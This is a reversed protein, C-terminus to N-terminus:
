LWYPSTIAITIIIGKGGGWKRVRMVFCHQAEKNMKRTPNSFRVLQVDAKFYVCVFHQVGVTHNRRRRRRRRGKTTKWTAKPLLMILLLNRTRFTLRTLFFFSRSCMKYKTLRGLSCQCLKAHNNSLVLVYSSGFSLGGNALRSEKAKCVFILGKLFLFLFYISGFESIISFGRQDKSEFTAFHGNSGKARLCNSYNQKFKFSTYVAHDSTNRPKWTTKFHKEKETWLM